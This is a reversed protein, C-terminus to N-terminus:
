ACHSALSIDAVLIEVIALGRDAFVCVSQLSEKTNIHLDTRHHFLLSPHFLIDVSTIHRDVFM